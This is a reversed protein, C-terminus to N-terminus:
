VYLGLVATAISAWLSYRCIDGHLWATDRAWTWKPNVHYIIMLVTATLGASAAIILLTFTLYDM